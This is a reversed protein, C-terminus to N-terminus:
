KCFVRDGSDAACGSLVAAFEHFHEAAKRCVLNGSSYASVTSNWDLADQLGPAGPLYKAFSQARFEERLSAVPALLASQPM